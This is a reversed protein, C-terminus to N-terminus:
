NLSPRKQGPIPQVNRQGRTKRHEIKGYHLHSLGWYLSSMFLHALRQLCVSITTAIFHIVNKKVSLM